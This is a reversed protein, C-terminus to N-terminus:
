AAPTVILWCITSTDAADSSNIVFSTGSVVTGVSLHGLTGGAIRRSLFVESATVMATTNVTVTGAVLVARGMTANAGEKVQLGKGVTAIVLDQATFTGSVTVSAAATLRGKTDVTFTGVQTASGYASPTVATNALSLTLDASLDGGGSLGGSTSVLRSSPVVDAAMGYQGHPDPEEEHNPVLIQQLDYVQEPTM